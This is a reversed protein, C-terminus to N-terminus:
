ICILDHDIYRKSRAIYIVIPLVILRFIKLSANDITFYFLRRLLKLDGRITDM